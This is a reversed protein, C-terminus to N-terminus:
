HVRKPSGQWYPERLERKLIKGTGGKPLSPRFEVRKPVKFGALRERCFDILEAESAECGDKLAVVAVPIEGWREDPAAVVASELVAPHEFLIKEIEVSSINEGGCVIMDKTRDVILVYGEPDVVAVDGTHFWGDRLTSATAEPDNWYGSMVVNSRVVIEGADRGNWPVDQGKADVIRLDVGVVPLGTSAQRRFREDESGTLYSKDTALTIIPSTESLGYGAIVRCGLMREAQRVM